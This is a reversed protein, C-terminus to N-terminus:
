IFIIVCDVLTYIFYQTVKDSFRAQVRGIVRDTEADALKVAALQKGEGALNIMGDLIFSRKFDDRNARFMEDTDFTPELMTVSDFRKHEAIDM